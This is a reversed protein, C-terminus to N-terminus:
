KIRVCELTGVDHILVRLLYEQIGVGIQATSM